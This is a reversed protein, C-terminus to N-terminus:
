GLEKDKAIHDNLWTMVVAVARRAENFGTSSELCEETVGDLKYAYFIGNTEEVTFMFGLLKAEFLTRM